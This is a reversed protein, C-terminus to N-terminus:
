SAPRRAATVIPQLVDAITPRGRERLEYTVRQCPKNVRVLRGLDVPTGILVLDCDVRNITEELDRIQAAGYGVAPLLAGGGPYAAFTEAISRVAAPRPDVLTAAGLSRAAVVAAGYSMEGHTLTPGDEVALVRRGRVAAPDEVTVPSDAEIVLASPNHLRLHNQVREIGDAPATDMKNIVAVRARLFNTQGPYYQLEHGARHPDLVVIELDSRFFPTDNNGGDWVVVEAEVEARRLIAEYDVGAYVVTGAALHSEYEEREEISCDAADLDAFSAFRQVAQRVLDGYPMPHRVVVVKLGAAALARCVARTTQSKGCGTRVAAISVVPVRARLMTEEAGPLIFRAGAAQAVCGLGMVHAHSVDSYAFVVDDVRRARIIAAMDAEPVIPIGDPYGPGALEPPYRRGAINPIQTATFGVVEFEERGRYLVNFDHFDRGAAGLILVRRRAAM